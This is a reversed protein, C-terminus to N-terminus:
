PTPLGFAVAVAGIAVAAVHTLVRIIVPGYPKIWEPITMPEGTPQANPAARVVERAILAIAAATCLYAAAHVATLM